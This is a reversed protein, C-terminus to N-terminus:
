QTDISLLIDVESDKHYPGYFREGYIEVFYDNKLKYRSATLRYKYIFDYTNLIQNKNEIFLPGKHTYQAFTSADMCYAVMGEPIHNIRDVCVGIFELFTAPEESLNPEYCIRYLMEGQIGQIEIIRNLFFEIKAPISEVQNDDSQNVIGIFDRKKFNVIREEIDVKGNYSKIDLKIAEIDFLTLPEISADASTARKRWKAPTNGYYKKFNRIFVEQSAFGYQIAIDLISESSTLLQNAAHYLKRRKIYEYISLGIVAKFLRYFHFKSM